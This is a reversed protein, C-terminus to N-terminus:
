GRADANRLAFRLGRSCTQCARGRRTDRCLRKMSNWKPLTFFRIVHTMPLAKVPKPLITYKSGTSNGATRAGHLRKWSKRVKPCRLTFAPKAKAVGDFCFSCVLTTKGTGPNGEILYMRNKPLGGKLIYDLGGIGTFLRESEKIKTM